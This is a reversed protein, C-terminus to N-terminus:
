DKHRDVRIQTLYLNFNPHKWIIEEINRVLKGQGTRNKGRGVM